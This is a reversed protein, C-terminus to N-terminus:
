KECKNEFVAFQKGLYGALLAASEYDKVGFYDLIRDEIHRKEHDYIERQLEFDDEDSFPYFVVCIKRMRMNSHTEGCDKYDQELIKDQLEDVASIPLGFSKFVRDMASFDFGDSQILCVDVEYIPIKFQMKIM